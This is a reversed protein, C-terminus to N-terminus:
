KLLDSIIAQLAGVTLYRHESLRHSSMMGIAVQDEEGEPELLFAGTMGNLRGRKAEELLFTLMTVMSEDDKVEPPIWDRMEVVNTM